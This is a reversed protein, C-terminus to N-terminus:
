SMALPYHGGAAARWARSFAQWPERYTATTYVDWYRDQHFLHDRFCGEPVFLSELNALISQYNYEPLETYVKTLRWTEFLYDILLVMGEIMQGARAQSGAARQFAVYVWGSELQANYASVLGQLVGNRQDVVAFQALVGQYLAESFVQFSPTAGRFRWRYGSRPDISAEYLQPVDNPQLPRLMTSGVVLPTASADTDADSDLGGSQVGREQIWGHADGLSGISGLLEDPVPGLFARLAQRLFVRQALGFPGSADLPTKPSVDATMGPVLEALTAVFDSWSLQGDLEGVSVV